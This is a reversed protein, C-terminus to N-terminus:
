STETAFDLYRQKAKTLARQESKNLDRLLNLTITSSERKWTGAVKGGCIITPGLVDWNNLGAVSSM